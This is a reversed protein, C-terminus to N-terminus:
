AHKTAQTPVELAFKHWTPLAERLKLIKTTNRKSMAPVPKHPLWRNQQLDAQVSPHSIRHAM